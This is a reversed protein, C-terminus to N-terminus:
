GAREETTRKKRTPDESDWSGKTTAKEKINGRM